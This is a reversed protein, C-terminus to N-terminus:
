AALREFDQMMVQWIASATGNRPQSVGDKLKYAKTVGRMALERMAEAQARLLLLARETDPVTTNAALDDIVHAIRYTFPYTSGLLSIQQATPAPVLHLQKGNVGGAIVTAHPLRKPYNAEWPMMRRRVDEGWECVQFGGFGAPLDYDAVGAQLTVTSTIIRPRLRGLDIAALNLLRAMANDVAELGTRDFANAADHLSQKLDAVLDAKSMTGPM